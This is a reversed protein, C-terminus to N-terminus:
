QGAGATERKRVARWWRALRLRNVWQLGLPHRVFETHDLASQLWGSRRCRYHYIVEDLLVEKRLAGSKILRLSWDHDESTWVPEFRFRRAIEARVPNLHHPPREYVGNRTRYESFRISYVFIRPPAGAFRVEGKIGICDVEPNALLLNTILAVYQDHVDDDDDVSVLFEGRALDMLRNRKIGTPVEGRDCLSLIEVQGQLGAEHIQRELKGRIRAFSDARGELTPILISLLLSDSM